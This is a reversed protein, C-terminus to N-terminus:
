YFITTATTEAWPLAHQREHSKSVQRMVLSDDHHNAFHHEFFCHFISGYITPWYQELGLVTRQKKELARKTHIHYLLLFSFYRKNDTICAFRNLKTTQPELSKRNETKRAFPSRTPAHSNGEPLLQVFKHCTNRGPLSPM